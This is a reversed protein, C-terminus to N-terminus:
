TDGTLILPCDKARSRDTVTTVVILQYVRSTARWVQIVRSTFRSRRIRHYSTHKRARLICARRKLQQPKMYHSLPQDHLNQSLTVESEREQHKRSEVIEVAGTYLMAEQGQTVRKGERGLRRRVREGDM